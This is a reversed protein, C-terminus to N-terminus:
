NLLDFIPSWYIPLRVNKRGDVDVPCQMDRMKLPRDPVLFSVNIKEKFIICFSELAILKRRVIDMCQTINISRKRLELKMCPLFKKIDLWSWFFIDQM